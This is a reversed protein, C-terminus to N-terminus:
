TSFASLTKNSVASEGGFIYILDPSADKVYKVIKSDSALNSPVLVIPAYVKAAFVSGSVFGAVLVAMILKSILRKM